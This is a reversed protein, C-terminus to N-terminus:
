RCNASSSFARKGPNPVSMWPSTFSSFPSPVCYKRSQTRARYRAAAVTAAATAPAVDAREQPTQMHTLCALSQAEHAVSRTRRALALMANADAEADDLRLLALLSTLRADLLGLRAAPALHPAALAAAAAPAPRRRLRYLQANGPADHRRRM